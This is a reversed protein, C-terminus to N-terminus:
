KRLYALAEKVLYEISIDSDSNMIGNVAKEAAKQNYGLSVLAAISDNRIINTQNAGGTFEEGLSGVKDRLEILLREGTKKGIGPIAVIRSLNGTKLAERLEDIQIGSLISQALKPGIGNVGILLVFMEKEAETFFGFLDLADEKVNLYTYLSVKESSSLKEFTNVTINVLYGVGNVDIIVQTPKKSIIQGTLFGIM